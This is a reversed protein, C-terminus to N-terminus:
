TRTQVKKVKVVKVGYKAWKKESYMSGRCLQKLKTENITICDMPITNRGDLVAKIFKVDNVVEVTIDDRTFTKGSDTETVNTPTMMEAAVVTEGVNSAEIQAAMAAKQTEALVLEQEKVYPLYEGDIHQLMGESGEVFPKFINDVVKGMTLYPGKASKRMNEFSKKLGQIKARTEAAIAKSTDDKVKVTPVFQQLGAYQVVADGFEQSTSVERATEQKMLEYSM